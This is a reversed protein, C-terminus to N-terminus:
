YKFAAMGPKAESIPLVEEIYKRAIRNSGHYISLNYKKYVYVFAGSCDAVMHGIWKSGYKKAMANQTADQKAQTWMTGATAPIYGWKDTLMQNFDTIISKCPISM